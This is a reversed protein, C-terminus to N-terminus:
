ICLILRKCTLSPTPLSCSISYASLRPSQRMSPHAPYASGTPPRRAGVEPDRQVAGAWAWACICWHEGHGVVSSLDNGDKEASSALFKEDM